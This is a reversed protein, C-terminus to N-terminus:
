SFLYNGYIFWKKNSHSHSYLSIPNEEKKEVYKEREQDKQNENYTIEKQQM